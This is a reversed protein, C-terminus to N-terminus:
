QANSSAEEDLRTRWQQIVHDRLTEDSHAALLEDMAIALFLLQGLAERARHRGVALEFAILDRVLKGVDLQREAAFAFLEARMTGSMRVTIFEHYSMCTEMVPHLTTASRLARDIYRSLRPTPFSIRAGGASSYDLSNLLNAARWIPGV